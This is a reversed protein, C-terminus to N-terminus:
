LTFHKFDKIELIETKALGFFRKFGLFLKSQIVPNLPGHEKNVSFMSQVKSMSLGGGMSQFRM